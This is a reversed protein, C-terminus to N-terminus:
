TEMPRTGQVDSSTQVHPARAVGSAARALPSGILSQQSAVAVVPRARMAMPGARCVDNAPGERTSPGSDRRTEFLRHM